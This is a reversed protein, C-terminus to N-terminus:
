VRIYIKKSDLILGIAWFVLVHAIAFALSGPYDGLVPQFINQYVWAYGNIFTEKGDKMGNPIRM